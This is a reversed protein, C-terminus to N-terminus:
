KAKKPLKLTERKTEPAKEPQQLTWGLLKHEELQAQTYVVHFGHKPHQIYIEM